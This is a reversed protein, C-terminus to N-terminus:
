LVFAAPCANVKEYHTEMCLYLLYGTLCALCSECYTSTSVKEAEAYLTNLRKITKEFVDHDIQL